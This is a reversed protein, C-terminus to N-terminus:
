WYYQVIQVTSLLTQLVLGELRDRDYCQAEASVDSYRFQVGDAGGPNSAVVLSSGIGSKAAAATVSANSGPWQNSRNPRWM